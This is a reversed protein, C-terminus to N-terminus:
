QFQNYFALGRLSVQSVLNNRFYKGTWSFPLDSRAALFLNVSLMQNPTMGPPPLKQDSCAAGCAVNGNVFNYSIQLGEISEAVPEAANFNQQRMLRPGTPDTNDLYYTVMWIRTATTPPYNGSGAPAQLQLMTGSPDTRQNLGYPDNTAFTLTQGNVDTVYEIANGQQNSFMILDGPAIAGNGPTLTVCNADFTVSAGAPDISGNCPQTPPTTPAPTPDNIFTGSLPVNLPAFTLNDAYIVSIMDTSGEIPPGLNPGPTVAPIATYTAPYTYAFGAPSPMNILPGGGIPISIGGTPIGSGALVIDKSMYDMGARLNETMNSMLAVGESAHQAQTLADLSVLVIVVTIATAVLLEILSFGASRKTQM